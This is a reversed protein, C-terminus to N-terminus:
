SSMSSSPLSPSSATISSSNSSSSSSGNAMANSTPCAADAATVIAVDVGGQSSDGSSNDTPQVASTSEVDHSKQGNAPFLTAYSPPPDIEDYNPPMTTESQPGNFNANSSSGTITSINSSELTTLTKDSKCCCESYFLSLSIFQYDNTNLHKRQITRINKKKM